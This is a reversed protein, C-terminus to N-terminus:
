IVLNSDIIVMVERLETDSQENCFDAEQLECIGVVCTVIDSLKDAIQGKQVCAAVLEKLRSGSPKMGKSIMNRIERIENDPDISALISNSLVPLALNLGKFSGMPEYVTSSAMADNRFDIGGKKDLTSSASAQMPSSSLKDYAGNILKAIEEAVTRSIPEPADKEEYKDPHYRSMLDRYAKKIEEKSAGPSVGLRQYYDLTGFKNFLGLIM